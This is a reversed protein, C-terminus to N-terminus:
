NVSSNCGAACISCTRAGWNFRMCCSQCLFTSSSNHGYKCIMTGCLQLKANTNLCIPLSKSQGQRCMHCPVHQRTSLCPRSQFFIGSVCHWRLPTLWKMVCYVQIICRLLLPLFVGQEKDRYVGPKTCM